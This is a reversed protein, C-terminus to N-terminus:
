RPRFLGRKALEQQRVYKEKYMAEDAQDLLMEASVPEHPDFLTSGISFGLGVKQANPDEELLRAEVQRLMAYINDMQQHPDQTRQETEERRDDSISLEAMIVLFEDGGIRGAELLSHTAEDGERRFNQQLIAELKQLLQDGQRHGYTDNYPKFNDLDILFLGFPEGREVRAEVRKGTEKKNLFSSLNPDYKLREQLALIVARAEELSSLESPDKDFDPSEKEM